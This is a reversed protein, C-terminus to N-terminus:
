WVTIYEMTHRIVKPNGLLKDVRMKGMGVEKRLKKRQDKYRRCKLLYHEM